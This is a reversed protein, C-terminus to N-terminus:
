EMGKVYESLSRKQCYRVALVSYGWAIVALAAFFILVPLLPFTYEMKGFLGVRSFRLCLIYGMATGITLTITATTLVYHFSEARLLESLQQESLGIARLMGFEQQRAALSTLLTNSLNLLAFVGTFVVIAYFIKEYIKLGHEFFSVAEVIGTVALGPNEGCIEYVIDDAQLRDELGTNFRLVSNFNTTHVKLVPLLDEPVFIYYGGYLRDQWDVTAMVQFPLKEGEDTEIQVSDGVVAEYHGYTKLMDGDDDIIIGRQEVLNDYDLTGSLLADQHSELYERSLGVIEYTPTDEVNVNGPFFLNSVCSKISVLDRLIVKEKLKAVFDQNLPNNRQLKDQAMDWSTLLYEDTSLYVVFDRDRLERRAVAEPNVSMMVSSACMLLVGTFGLSFLTLVTRKRNRSFNIKALSRPTLRRRLKKTDNFKTVDTTTTIRVAEMPSVSVAIRVPKRISMRVTIEMAVATLVAFKMTNPLYWGDPLLLYGMICGSIIGFPISLLSLKRSEKQVLRKMQKQTIGVVRLQGYEKVKETVSIYFLSYIVVYCAIIILMGIGGTTLRDASANEFTTFYSSSFRIDAEEFGYPELSAIIYQKLGDTDMDESGAMRILAAYPINTGAFYSALLKQSVLVEYTNDTDEDQILGCVTYESPVNRGLDLSISQGLVPEMGQKELYSAAIAIETEGEPLRGQLLEHSSMQFATEDYYTAKLTDKGMRLERFRMTLMLGAQEIKEDEALVACQEPEEVSVVAQFRGKYFKNIQYTGGYVYLALTMILCAAFAITIMIFLNRRRDARISRDALRNIIKNTSATFLSTM